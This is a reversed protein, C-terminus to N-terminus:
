GLLLLLVAAILVVVGGITVLPRARRLAVAGGFREPASGVGLLVVAIALLGILVLRAADAGAGALSRGPHVTTPTAASKTGQPTQAPASGHRAASSSTSTSSLPPAPLAAGVLSTPLTGCVSTLGTRRVRLLARKGQAVLRVRVDVVRRASTRGVFHYVGPRLPEGVRRRLPLVNAGRHAHVTYRGVFRCAPALEWVAMRVVAARALRFRAVTSREPSGAHTRTRAPTTGTSTAGGPAAPM